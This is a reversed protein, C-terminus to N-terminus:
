PQRKAYKIELASLLMSRDLFHVRRSTATGRLAMGCLAIEINGDPQSTFAFVPSGSFGDYTSLPPGDVIELEHLHAISSSGCYRGVMAIRVTRIEEEAYDVFSHEEPFGLIVFESSHSHPLWDGSALALDILRAQALEAHQISTVDIEIVALDVYDDPILTESVYFVDDLPLIRRSTDSPLICVPSLSDPNLAHRATLVFARGKYGVLFVTGKTAYPFEPVGTEFVLPQVSAALRSLAEPSM